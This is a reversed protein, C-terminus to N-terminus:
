PRKEEIGGIFGYFLLNLMESAMAEVSTFRSYFKEDTEWEAGKELCYLFTEPSVNLRIEGSAQKKKLDELFVNLISKNWDIVTKLWDQNHSRQIDKFFAWSMPLAQDLKLRVFARIKEKYPLDSARIARIREELERFRAQLIADALAKKNAFHKYFTMKSVGAERCIEEVSIRGIGHKLILPLGAELIAARKKGATKKM